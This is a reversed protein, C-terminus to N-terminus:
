SHTEAAVLFILKEVKKVLAILTEVFSSLDTKRTKSKSLLKYSFQVSVM